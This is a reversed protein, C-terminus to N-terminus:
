PHRAILESFNLMVSRMKQAHESSLIDFTVYQIGKKDDRFFCPICSVPLPRYETNDSSRMRSSM